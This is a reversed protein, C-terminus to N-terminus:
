TAGGKAAARASMNCRRVSNAKLLSRLVSATIGHFDSRYVKGDVVYLYDGYIPYDDPLENEDDFEATALPIIEAETAKAINDLRLSLEHMERFMRFNTDHKHWNNHQLTHALRETQSKETTM